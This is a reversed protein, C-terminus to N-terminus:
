AQHSAEGQLMMHDCAIEPRPLARFGSEAFTPIDPLAAVRVNM